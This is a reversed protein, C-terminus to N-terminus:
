LVLFLLTTFKVLVAKADKDLLAIMEDASELEIKAVCKNMRSIKDPDINERMILVHSIAHNFPWKAPFLM